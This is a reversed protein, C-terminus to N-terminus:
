PFSHSDFITLLLSFLRVGERLIVVDGVVVTSAPIDVEEGNRLVHAVPSTMRRLAELTKESRYEQMVSIATNGVIIVAVVIAEVTDQAIASLIVAILLVANMPNLVNRLLIRWFPTGSSGKLVNPGGIRFRRAAEADDLGTLVDVDVGDHGAVDEASRAHPSQPLAIHEGGNKSM